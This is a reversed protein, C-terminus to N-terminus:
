WYHEGRAPEHQPTSLIMTYTFLTVQIASKIYRAGRSSINKKPLKGKSMIMSHLFHILNSRGLALILDRLLASYSLMM